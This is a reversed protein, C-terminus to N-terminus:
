PSEVLPASSTSIVQAVNEQRKSAEKKTGGGSVTMKRMEPYARLFTNLEEHHSKAACHFLFTTTQFLM